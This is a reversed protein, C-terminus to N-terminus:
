LISAAHTSCEAEELLLNGSCLLNFLMRVLCGRPKRRPWTCCTGSPTPTSRARPAPRASLNKQWSACRMMGPGGRRPSRRLLPARLAATLPRCLDISSQSLSLSLSLSTVSHYGAIGTVRALAGSLALAAMFCKGHYNVSGPANPLAALAMGCCGVPRSDDHTRYEIERWKRMLAVKFSPDESASQLLNQLADYKGYRQWDLEKEAASLDRWRQRRQAAKRARREREERDQLMLRLPIEILCCRKCLARSINWSM